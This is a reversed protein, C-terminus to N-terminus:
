IQDNYKNFHIFTKSQYTFLLHVSKSILLSKSINLLPHFHHNFILNFYLCLCWSQRKFTILLYLILCSHLYSRLLSLNWFSSWSMLAVIETKSLLYYDVLLWRIHEMRRLVIQWQFTALWLNFVSWCKCESLEWLPVLCHNFKFILQLNQFVLHLLDLWLIFAVLGLHRDCIYM